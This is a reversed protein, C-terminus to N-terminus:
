IIYFVCLYSVEQKAPKYFASTRTAEGDQYEGNVVEPYLQRPKSGVHKLVDEINFSTLRKQYDSNRTPKCETNSTHQIKPTSNIAVPNHRTDTNNPDICGRNDDLELSCSNNAGQRM